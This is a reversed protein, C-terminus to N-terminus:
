DNSPEGAAGTTGTAGSGNPAVPLSWLLGADAGHWTIERARWATEGLSLVNLTQVRTDPREQMWADFADRSDKDALHNRRFAKLDTSDLEPTTFLCTGDEDFVVAHLGSERVLAEWDGASPDDGPTDDVLVLCASKGSWSIPQVTLSRGDELPVGEAGAKSPGMRDLWNRIEAVPMYPKLDALTRASGKAGPIRSNMIEVTGDVRVVMARVPLADFVSRFATEAHDARRAHAMAVAALDTASAAHGGLLPETRALLLDLSAASLTEGRVVAMMGIDLEELPRHLRIVVGYWTALAILAWMTLSVALIALGTKLAQSTVPPEPGVAVAWRGVSADRVAVVAVEASGYPMSTVLSGSDMDKVVRWWVGDLPSGVDSPMSSAVVRGTADIVWIRDLGSRKVLASLSNGAGPAASHSDFVTQVTAELGAWASKEIRDRAWFSALIVALLVVVGGPLLMRFLLKRAPLGTQVARTQNVNM